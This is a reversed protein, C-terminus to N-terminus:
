EVPAGEGAAGGAEAPEPPATAWRAKELGPGAAPAAPLTVSDSARWFTSLVKRAAFSSALLAGAGSTGGPEGDGRGVGRLLRELGQDPTQAPSPQSPARVRRSGTPDEDLHLDRALREVLQGRAQTADAAPRGLALRGARRGPDSDLHRDAVSARDGGSERAAAVAQGPAGDGTAGASR